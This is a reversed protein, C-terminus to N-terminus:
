IATMITSQLRRIPMPNDWFNNVRHILDIMYERDAGLGKAKHIAAMLKTTGEGSRADYAFAFTSYRNDLAAQRLAPPFELAKKEELEAVKMRAMDIHRVPDVAEKDLVSLVNRNNYGYFVQSRGLMDLKPIGIYDGVSKVFPKWEDETVTTLRSLEVLVRFKYPNNLNSTRAIHHNINGLIGHVESDTLDSEDVDLCLWSVQSNVNERGRVRGWAKPHKEYDYFAGEDVSKYKFPTFGYDHDLLYALQSFPTDAYEFGYVAYWAVAQKLYQISDKDANAAIADQIPQNDVALFSAGHKM